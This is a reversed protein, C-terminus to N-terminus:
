TWLEPKVFGGTYNYSANQYGMGLMENGVYAPSFAPSYAPSYAPSGGVTTFAVLGKDDAYDPHAPQLTPSPELYASHRRPALGSPAPHYPSGPVALHAPSRMPSAGYPGSIISPAETSSSVLQMNQFGFPSNPNSHYQDAPQQASWQLRNKYDVVMESPLEMLSMSLQANPTFPQSAKRAFFMRQMEEIPPVSMTGLYAGGIEPFLPELALAVAFFQSLVALSVLDSDQGRLMAPPLWFLWARLPQLREFAEDSSSLPLDERLRQVFALLDVIWRLHDECHVMRRQVDQLTAYLRDLRMLDENRLESIAGHYTPTLPTRSSRLTRQGELHSALPSGEKWWPQMSNLVTSVGQQLSAWSSWETAQWSLLMSAALIADCNDKSFAGIAEHLGKLAIGRHHYALNDTEQSETIWALHTASLALISSMVFDYHLAISLFVPMKQAWVICDAYGRRHIEISLGAVHHILRLDVNSYRYWYSRSSLRLEPFPPNGTMRWDEIEREIESTMCLDPARPSRPPEDTVAPNDM